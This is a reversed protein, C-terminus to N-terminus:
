SGSKEFINPALNSTVDKTEILKKESWGAQTKLYFLLSTNDGNRINKWLLGTAEKIGKSRGKKYVTDVALDRNKLEHFTRESMGFYNAIQEITMSAAMEELESIQEATLEKRRRGLSSNDTKKKRNSM